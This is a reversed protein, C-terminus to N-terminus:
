ISNFVLFSLPFLRLFIADINAMKKWREIEDLDELRQKIDPPHHVKCDQNYIYNLGEWADLCIPCDNGGYKTNHKHCQQLYQHPCPLSHGSYGNEPPILFSVWSTIVFLTSPLYYIFLYKSSHRKLVIRFGTISFRQNSGAYEYIKESDPLEEITTIYDLVPNQGEKDYTLRGLEFTMKTEDFNTSGVWFSCIHSDLPFKNFRMPCMFTIHSLTNYFLEKEEVIWLGALSM